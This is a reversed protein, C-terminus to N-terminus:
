FWNGTAPIDGSRGYTFILDGADFTHDNNYDLTWVLNGRGDDRVVGIKERFDGNWDGVVATDTALGFTFVQDGADFVHNNNVDLMFVAGGQANARVVGLKTRGDGNWDGLIIQDTIFGFTFVQDGADFVHNDNSDLSFIDAGGPGARYVGVESHGAGTWDGAIPHDGAAGFIFVTSSADFARHGDTDLIFEGAFGVSRFVGVKTHGDGNWDGVIPIDGPAGFTFTQDGADLQHDGNSDIIWTGNRFVGPLDPGLKYLISSDSASPTPAASVAAAVSSAAPAPVLRSELHELKPASLM